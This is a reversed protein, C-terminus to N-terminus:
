KKGTRRSRVYLYLVLIVVALGFWPLGGSFNFDM